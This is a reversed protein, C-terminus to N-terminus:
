RIGTDYALVVPTGAGDIVTVAVPEATGMMGEVPQPEVVYDGAALEVFATGLDDLTVSAAESGDAGKIVVAAGAVPRPECAPDPPVTEVPCVPGATASIMLGTRGDGAPSPWAEPPVAEGAETQLVVTGDPQVAYTWTHESICGAPCDGWGVRVQVVFAGVGSAPTVIYWSAQGILDADKAGIGTLRPETAIVAAVAAEPTTIPALAPSSSASPSTSGGGCAVLAVLATLWLTALLLITPPTRHM